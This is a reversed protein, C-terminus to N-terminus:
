GSFVEEMKQLAKKTLIVHDSNLVDYAHIGNATKLVLGPINRGSKFINEEYGELVLLRKGTPFGMNDLIEHLAKTRPVELTLDEIVVM